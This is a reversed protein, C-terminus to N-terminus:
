DATRVRLLAEYEEPTNVNAILRPFDSSRNRDPVVIRAGCERLFDGVKRKKSRLLMELIPLCERRYLGALTHNGLLDGLVTAPEPGALALVDRIIGPTLLPQDCSVAFVASASTHTLASHIGGLPGSENFVDPVVPVGFSAYRDGGDAVIVVETFVSALATLIHDLFPRDWLLLLAKDRGMRSSRGGALVAGSISTPIM